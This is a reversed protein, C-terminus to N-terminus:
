CSGRPGSLGGYALRGSSLGTFPTGPIALVTKRM